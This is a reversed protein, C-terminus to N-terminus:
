VYPGYTSIDIDMPVGELKSWVEQLKNVLRSGYKNVIEDVMTPIQESPREWNRYHHLSADEESVADTEHSSKWVQHVGVESTLRPNVIYKSRSNYMLYSKERMTNTLVVSRYQKAVTEFEKLPRPWEKRFFVCKFQYASKIGTKSEREQLLETWTDHKRPIIFEDLDQYVLYKSRYRHRYLCDNLAAVQAFYHIEPEVTPPWTDTNMPLHWPLVLVEDTQSYLELVKDVNPGTSHNYFVFKEAGLLKNLEIMEVLEYARSYRYNFPTVCVTFQSEMKGLRPLFLINSPVGCEIGTVLSVAYLTDKMMNDPINCSIFAAGYRRGHDEPMFHVDATTVFLPDSDQVHFWMQCTLMVNRNDNELLAIIKAQKEDLYVSYVYINHGAVQFEGAPRPQRMQLGPCKTTSNLTVIRPSVSVKSTRINGEVPHQGHRFSQDYVDTQTQPTKLFVVINIGVVTIAVIIICRLLKILNCKM